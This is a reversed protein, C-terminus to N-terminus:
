QMSNFSKQISMPWGFSKRFPMHMYKVESFFLFGSFNTLSVQLMTPFTNTTLEQAHQILSPELQSFINNLYYTSISRYIPRATIIPRYKPKASRDTDALVASKIPRLLHQCFATINRVCASLKSLFACRLVDLCNDQLLALLHTQM